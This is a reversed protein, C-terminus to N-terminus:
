ESYLCYEAFMQEIEASTFIEAMINAEFEVLWHARPYVRQIYEVREQGLVEIATAVLRQPDTVIPTNRHTGRAANICHQIAHSVEHRVTDHDDADVSGGTCLILQRQLGRSRYVGYVNPNQECFPTDIRLDIDSEDITELLDLQCRCRM